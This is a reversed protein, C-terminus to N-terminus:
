SVVGVPSRAPGGALTLGPCNRPPLAPTYSNERGIYRDGGITQRPPLFSRCFQWVGEDEGISQQPFHPGSRVEQCLARHHFHLSGGVMM